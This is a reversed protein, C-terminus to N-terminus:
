APTAPPTVPIRTAGDSELFQLANYYPGHFGSTEYSLSLKFDRDLYRRAKDKGVAAKMDKYLEQVFQLSQESGPKYHGSANNQGIIRGNDVCLCGAAMTPQGSLFTSHHFRGVEKSHAYFYGSPSLVFIAWGKNLDGDGTHHDGSHFPAGGDIDRYYLGGRCVLRYPIRANDDLYAVEKARGTTSDPWMKDIFEQADSSSQITNDALWGQFSLGTPNHWLAYNQHLVTAKSRHQPDLFEAHYEPSSLVKVKRDRIREDQMGTMRRFAQFPRAYTTTLLGDLESALTTVGDFRHSGSGNGIYKAPKFTTKNPNADFWAQCCARAKVIARCQAFQDTELHADDIAGEIATLVAKRSGWGSKSQTISRFQASSRLGVIM